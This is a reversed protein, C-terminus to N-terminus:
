FHYRNGIGPIMLDPLEEVPDACFVERDFYAIVKISVNGLVGANPCVDCHNVAVPEIPSTGQHARDTTDAEASGQPPERVGVPNGINATEIKEALDVAVDIEALLRRREVGLLDDRADDLVALAQQRREEAPQHRVVRSAFM